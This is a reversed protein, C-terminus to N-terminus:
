TICKQTFKKKNMLWTQTLSIDDPPNLGGGERTEEKGEEKRPLDDRGWHLRQQHLLSSFCAIVRSLAEETGGEERGGRLGERPV